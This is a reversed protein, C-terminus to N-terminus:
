QHLAIGKIAWMVTEELHTLAISLERGEPVNGYLVQLFQKADERVIEMRQIVKDTTPPQNTLSKAVEQIPRYM